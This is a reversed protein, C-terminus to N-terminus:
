EGEDDGAGQRLNIYADWLLSMVVRPDGEPCACGSQVLGYDCSGCPKMWPEVRTRLEEFKM